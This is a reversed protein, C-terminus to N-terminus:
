HVSTGSPVFVSARSVTRSQAARSAVSEKQKALSSTTPGEYVKSIARPRVPPPLVKEPVKSSFVRRTMSTNPRQPALSQPKTARPPSPTLHLRPVPPPVLTPPASARPRRIPTRPSLLTSTSAKVPVTAKPPTMAKPSATVKPPTASHPAKAPIASSSAQAPGQSQRPARKPSPKPKVAAPEPKKIIPVQARAEPESIPPTLIGHKSDTKEPVPEPKSLIPAPAPKIVTPTPLPEDEPEPEEIIPQPSSAIRSPEPSALQKVTQQEKDWDQTFAQRRKLDELPVPQISPSPATSDVLTHSGDSTLSTDAVSWTGSFSRRLTGDLREKFPDDYGNPFKKPPERTVVPTGAAGQLKALRAQIGAGVKRAVISPNPEVPTAPMSM